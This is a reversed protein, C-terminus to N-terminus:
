PIISGELKDAMGGFYRFCLATRPLDLNQCDRIPHGTNMAELRTLHDADAEIADALKLLLRGREHAAMGAWVPAAKKAAEVARDVDEERAEAVSVIKQGTYPNIVDIEAGAAGDVWQGGILLRTQIQSPDIPALKAM